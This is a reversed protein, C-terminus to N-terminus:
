GGALIIWLFAVRGPGLVSAPALRPAGIAPAAGRQRFGRRPRTDHVDGEEGSGSRVDRGRAPCTLHGWRGGPLPMRRMRSSLVRPPVGERWPSEKRSKRRIM